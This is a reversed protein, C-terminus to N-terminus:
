LDSIRKGQRIIDKLFLDTKALAIDFSDEREYHQFKKNVVSHLKATFPTGRHAEVDNYYLDLSFEGLQEKYGMIEKMTENIDLKM